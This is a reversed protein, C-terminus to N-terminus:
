EESGEIAVAEVAKCAEESQPTPAEEAQKPAEEAATGGGVVATAGGVQDAARRADATGKHAFQEGGIYSNNESFRKFYHTKCLLLTGTKTFNGLTIQCSCDKCKACSKHFKVGDLTIQPDAPYITKDCGSCKAANGAGAGFKSMRDKISKQLYDPNVLSPRRASAPAAAPPPASSSSAATISGRVPSKARAAVLGPSEAGTAPAPPPLSPSASRASAGEDSPSSDGVVVESKSPATDGERRADATGKHAFKDGGIYSNNASFRAFYHTKCLLIEGCKTFNSQSPPILVGLYTKNFLSFTSFPSGVTLSRSDVPRDLTLAPCSPQM